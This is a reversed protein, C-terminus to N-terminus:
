GFNSAALGISMTVGNNSRKLNPDTVGFSHVGSDMTKTNSGKLNPDADGGRGSWAM